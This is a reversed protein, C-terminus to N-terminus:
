QTEKLDVAFIRNLDTCRTEIAYILMAASAESDSPFLSFGNGANGFVESGKFIWKRGRRVSRFSYFNMKPRESTNPIYLFGNETNGFVESSCISDASKRQNLPLGRLPIPDIHTLVWFILSVEQGRRYIVTSFMITLQGNEITLQCM